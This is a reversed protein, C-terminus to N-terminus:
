DNVIGEPLDNNEVTQHLIEIILKMTLTPLIFDSLGQGQFKFSFEKTQEDKFCTILINHKYTSKSKNVIITWKRLDDIEYPINLRIVDFGEEIIRKCFYSQNYLKNKSM